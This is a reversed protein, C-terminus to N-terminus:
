PFSPSCYVNLILYGSGQSEPGPRSEAECVAGKIESVVPNSREQHICLYTFESPPITHLRPSVLPVLEHELAFKQSGFSSATYDCCSELFASILFLEVTSLVKFAVLIHFGCTWLLLTFSSGRCTHMKLTSIQCGTFVFLICLCHISSFSFNVFTRVAPSTLNFCRLSSM